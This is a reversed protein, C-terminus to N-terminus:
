KGKSRDPKVRPKDSYGERAKDLADAIGSPQAPMNRSKKYVKRNYDELVADFTMASAKPGSPRHIKKAM